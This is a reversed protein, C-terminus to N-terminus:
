EGQYLTVGGLFDLKDVLYIIMVSGTPVFYWLPPFVRRVLMVAAFSPVMLGQTPPSSQTPRTLDHRALRPAPEESPTATTLFRSHDCHDEARSVMPASGLAWRTWILFEAVKQNLVILAVFIGTLVLLKIIESLDDEGPEDEPVAYQSTQIQGLQGGEQGAEVDGATGDIDAPTSQWTYQEGTVASYANTLEM